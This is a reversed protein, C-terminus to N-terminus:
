GQIRRGCARFFQGNEDWAVSGIGTYGQQAHCAADINVKIWGEPPKCWQRNINGARNRGGGGVDEQSLQWEQLLGVAM